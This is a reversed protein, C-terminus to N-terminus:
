YSNKIMVHKKEVLTGLASISDGTTLGRIKIRDAQIEMSIVNVSARSWGQWIGARSKTCREFFIDATLASAAGYLGAKGSLQIRYVQRVAVSAYRRVNVDSFYRFIKRQNDHVVNEIKYYHIHNAKATLPTINWSSGGPGGFDANILHGAIWKREESKPVGRLFSRIQSRQADSGRGMSFDEAPSIIIKAEKALGRGEHDINRFRSITKWNFPSTRLSLLRSPM